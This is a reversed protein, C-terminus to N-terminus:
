EDDPYFEAYEPRQWETEGDPTMQYRWEGASYEFGLSPADDDDALLEALETDLGHYHGLIATAEAEAAGVPVALGRVCLASLAVAVDEIGVTGSPDGDLEGLDDLLGVYLHSFPEPGDALNNLVLFELQTLTM